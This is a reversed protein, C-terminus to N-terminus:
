QYRLKTFSMVLVYELPSTVIIQCGARQVCEAFHKLPKASTKSGRLRGQIVGSFEVVSLITSCIFFHGEPASLKRM